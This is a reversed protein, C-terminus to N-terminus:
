APPRPTIIGWIPKPWAADTHYRGIIHVHLQAVVNGLAAINMKDPTYEKQIRASVDAIESMLQIQQAPSLHTIESINQVRPVLLFWPVDDCYIKRLQCLPLNEILASDNELRPDLAFDAATNVAHIPPM